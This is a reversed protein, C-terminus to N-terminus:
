CGYVDTLHLHASNLNALCHRLEDEDAQFLGQWGEGGMALTAKMVEAKRLLVEDPSPAETEWCPDHASHTTRWEASTTTDSM